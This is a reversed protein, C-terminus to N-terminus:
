YVWKKGASISRFQGQRSIWFRCTGKGLVRQFVVTLVLM